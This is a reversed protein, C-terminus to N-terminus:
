SDLAPPPNGAKAAEEARRLTEDIAAQTMTERPENAAKLAKRYETNWSKVFADVAEDAVLQAYEVVNVGEPPNQLAADFSKCWFNIRADIPLVSPKM